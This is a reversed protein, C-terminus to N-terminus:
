DEEDAGWVTMIRIEGDVSHKDSFLGCLKGLLELGKYEANLNNELRSRIILDRIERALSDQTVLYREENKKAEEVLIEKLYPKTLNEAAIQKATKSSYGAERAAATANHGNKLYARVFDKQKKTIKNKKEM